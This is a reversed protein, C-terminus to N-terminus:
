LLIKGANHCCSMFMYKIKEANVGLGFGKSTDLLAQTNKKITNTKAWYTLMMQM